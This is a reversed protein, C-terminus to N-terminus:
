YKMLRKNKNRKWFYQSFGKESHLTHEPTIQIAKTKFTEVDIIGEKFFVLCM